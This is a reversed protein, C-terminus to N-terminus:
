ASRGSPRRLGKGLGGSMGRGAGGAPSARRPGGDDPWIAHQCTTSDGFRGQDCALFRKGQNPGAKRVVRTVMKGKGCATCPEGEGKLPPIDDKPWEMFSCSKPDGRVNADCALFRKGKNPGDKSVMRTVLKGKGCTPCPKGDGPLAEVPKQERQEWVVHKCAKPDDRRYETCSLYRRGKHDGSNLMRTVLTGKGCTPCKDGDGPLKPVPKGDDPWKAFRCSDPDDKRWADCSLFRKGKNPGGSATRTVLRGKGCSPCPDGTGPLPEAGGAVKVTTGKLTEVLRRVEEALGAVFRDLQLDGRAVRELQEEWIATLAPDKVSDDVADVVDRGKQSSILFKGKRGIFERRILNELIAARTAETGIGSNEKLRKKVESDKVFKHIAIMAEVLTGDTFRAPPTTRKSDIASGSVKVPDGKAMRPLAQDDENEDEEKELKESGTEYVAKWGKDTINNGTAKFREGEVSVVASLSDWRYDPYFQAMFRKAIIDFVKREEPPLAAIKDPTAELTPVIAYHDTVKKDDWAPSKLAMNAKGAIAGYADVRGLNAMITPAEERLLSTPLHSSDTRPYSTVKYTEYLSQAMSASKELTYGFKSSLEKQLGSLAFPLPPSKAKPKVEFTDVRGTKGAVKDAISQAVAKDVLRGEHDTGPHDPPIIWSAKFRGNAHEFIVGPLYHDVPKFKEIERDRDVVLRLTPTQVRGVSLVGKSMGSRRALGTYLRTMNMGLLWDARQRGLAAHYLFRKESNPFMNELAEIKKKETMDQVWLRLVDPAFPDRGSEVILEDVLLQGEREADGLNVLKKSQKILGQIARVHGLKDQSPFIAWKGPIIPLDDISWNEYRADYHQPPAQEYMHGFLWTVADPGVTWHTAGKSATVGLQQARSKAIEGALKPKEAIFLHDIM